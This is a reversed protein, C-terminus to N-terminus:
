RLGLVPVDKLCSAKLWQFVSLCESTRPSALLAALATSISSIELCASERLRQSGPSGKLEGKGMQVGCHHFERRRVSWM